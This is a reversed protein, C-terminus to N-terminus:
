RVDLSFAHIKPMEDELAGMVARHRALRSLPTLTEANIIVHFHSEASGHEAAHAQAGAHGAHLHSQDIVELHSPNFSKTLKETIASAIIGM